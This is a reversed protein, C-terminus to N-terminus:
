LKSYSSKLDRLAEKLVKMKKKDAIADKPPKGTEDRSKKSQRSESQQYSSMSKMDDNLTKDTM